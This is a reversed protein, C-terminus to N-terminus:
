KAARQFTNAVKQDIAQATSSMQHSMAQLRNQANVRDAEAQKLANQENALASRYDRRQVAAVQPSTPVSNHLSAAFQALGETNPAVDAADRPSVPTFPAAAVLAAALPLLLVARAVGPM